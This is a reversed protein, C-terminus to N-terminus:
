RLCRRADNNPISISNIKGLYAVNLIDLEQSHSVTQIRVKVIFKEGPSEVPKINAGFFYLKFISSGLLDNEFKAGGDLFHVLSFISRPTTRAIDLRSHSKFLEM